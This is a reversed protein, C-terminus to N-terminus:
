EALKLKNKVYTGDSLKINSEITIAGAGKFKLVVESLGGVTGDGHDTGKLEIEMGGSIDQTAYTGWGGMIEPVVTSPYLLKFKVDYLGKNTVGVVYNTGPRITSGFDLALLNLGASSNQFVYASGNYGGWTIIKSKFPTTSEGMYYEILAKGYSGGPFIVPVNITANNLKSTFTQEGKVEDYLDTEWGYNEGPAYAWPVTKIGDVLKIKIKIKGVKPVKVAFAYLNDVVFQNLNLALLNTRTGIKDPFEFAPTYRFSSKLNFNSIYEDFNNVENLVIGLDKYKKIVNEKIKDLSLEKSYSILDAQILTDNLVGDEKMDAIMDAQLKSLEATTRNGQLIASVALLAANGEGTKAIDLSEADGVQLNEMNFVKLIENQAENKASPYSLAQKAMLFRIREYELNTLVNINIASKGALNVFAKLMVREDSLEGSVENYYFGDAIMQVYDSSLKIGSLEFHGKADTNVLFTRGTPKFDTDLDYIMVSSGNIFPGKQANGTLDYEKLEKAPATAPEPDEKCSFLCLTLAIAGLIMCYKM